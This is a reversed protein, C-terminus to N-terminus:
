AVAPVRVRDRWAVITEDIWDIGTPHNPGPFAMSITGMDSSISRAGEPIGANGKRRLLHHRAAERAAEVLDAPPVDSWGAEYAVSVNRRGYTWVGLEHRAVVGSEYLDLDDLEDQTFATGDVSASIIRRAYPAKLTLSTLSTGDFVDRHYRRVFSTGCEREILAEVWEVATVLKDPPYDDGSALNAANRLSNLSFYFGGVVEVQTSLAVDEGAISAAWNVTLRDLQGTHAATLRFEYRGDDDTEDAAAEGAAVLVTGDDRVIEITVEDDDADTAVEGDYFTATIVATSGKIVRDM